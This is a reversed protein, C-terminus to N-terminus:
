LYIGVGPGIPLDFFMWAFMLLSWLIYIVIAFPIMLSVLTGVGAKKDYKQLTILILVFYAMVPSISNTPSDAVRFALQIFEPTYGMQMMIPIFIPAFIMWQAAAALIFLNVFATLLMFVIIFPVGAFGISQLFDSLSVSMVIGINSVTFLNVFQSAAFSLGIFAAMSAMTTTIHKSVDASGKIDGTVKGYVVGTVIFLVVLVPVLHTFFPAETMRAGEAPGLPAWSPWVLLSLVFATALLAIGAMKLARKEVDSIDKLESADDDPLEASANKSDYKGLRPEVFKETMITIVIILMVTSAAMFIYNGLISVEYYPDVAYVAEQTIGALIIDLPTVLFNASFSSAVGAFAAALGAAPHRGMSKFLVAGLPIIVVYGADTAINSLIAALVLAATIAGKPVSIVLKRLAVSLLGTQELVGIGIMVTIVQGFPMFGMFNSVANTFIHAIGAGSLLNFVEVRETPDQPSAVSAGFLSLIASLIILIVTLYVFLMMPDPIKNGVVEVFNLFRDVFGKKAKATSSM